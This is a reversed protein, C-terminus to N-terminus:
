QFKECNGLRLIWTFEHFECFIKICVTSFKGFVYM